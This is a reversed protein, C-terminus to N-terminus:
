NSELTNEQAFLWHTSSSLPRGWPSFGPDGGFSRLGLHFLFSYGTGEFEVLVNAMMKSVVVVVLFSCILRSKWTNQCKIALLYTTLTHKARVTEVCLIVM